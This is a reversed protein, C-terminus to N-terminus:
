RLYESIKDILQKQSVPKILFDNFGQLIMKEKDGALGFATQAIIIMTNGSERLIKTCSYGDLVPMQIDMLILDIDANNKVIDLAEKGNGANLLIIGEKELIKNLYFRSFYDDEVVLIKKGKLIEAEM